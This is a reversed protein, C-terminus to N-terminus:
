RIIQVDRESVIKWGSESRRWGLEQIVEGSSSQIGTYNWSKHFRTIATQGDDSIRIEPESIHVNISSIQAFLRSKEARVAAISVDRKQYFANLAPAYFSMQQNVDRANTAAIWDNLRKSLESRADRPVEIKGSSNDKVITNSSSKPEPGTSPLASPEPQGINESKSVTASSDPASSQTPSRNFAFWIAVIVLILGLSAIGYVLKPKPKEVVSQNSPLTEDRSGINASVEARRTETPEIRHQGVDQSPVAAPASVKTAAETLTEPQSTAYGQVSPDNVDSLHEAPHEATPM